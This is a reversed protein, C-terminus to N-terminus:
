EFDNFCVQNARLKAKHRIHKALRKQANNTSFSARKRAEFAGGRRSQKVDRRPYINQLIRKRRATGM